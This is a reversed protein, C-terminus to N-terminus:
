HCVREYAYGLFVGTFFLMQGPLTVVDLLVSKASVGGSGGDVKGLGDEVMSFCGALMSFGVLVSAM